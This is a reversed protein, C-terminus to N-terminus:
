RPDNAVRAPISSPKTGTPLKSSDQSMELKPTVSLAYSGPETYAVEQEYLPLDTTAIAVCATVGALALSTNVVFSWPLTSSARRGMAPELAGFQAETPVFDERAAPLNGEWQCAFYECRFRQVPSVLSTLRDFPRRWTRLLRGACKPCENASIASYGHSHRAPAHTSM